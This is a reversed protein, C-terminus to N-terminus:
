SEEWDTRGYCIVKQYWSGQWKVWQGTYQRDGSATQSDDLWARASTSSSDAEVKPTTQAVPNATGKKSPGQGFAATQEAKQAKGQEERQCTAVATKEGRRKNYSDVKQDKIHKLHREDDHVAIQDVGTNSLLLNYHPNKQLYEICEEESNETRFMYLWPQGIYQFRDPLQEQKSGIDLFVLRM